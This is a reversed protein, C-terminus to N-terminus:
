IVQILGSVLLVVGFVLCAGATVGRRHDTVYDNLAQLPAKVRDGLIMLALPPAAAPVMTIVFVLLLAAARVAPGEGSAAVEHAAPFYLALNPLILGAGAGVMAWHVGAGESGEAAAPMRSKPQAGKAWVLEYIGVGFLVAAGVLKVVGKLEPSAKHGGTGVHFLLAAATAAVLLLAVGLAVSWAWALPNRARSINIVQLGVMAPSITAGAALPLVQALLPTV